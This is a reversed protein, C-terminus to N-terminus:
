KLRSLLSNLKDIENDSLKEGIAADLNRRGLSLESVLKIGKETIRTRNSRRDFDSPFKELLSKKELRDILRSADSMKDALSDRVEQISLSEPHKKALTLLINFQKPTIGFPDLYQRSLNSLWSSSKYINYRLDQIRNGGSALFGSQNPQNAM